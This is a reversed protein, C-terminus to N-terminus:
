ESFTKGEASVNGLGTSYIMELVALSSQGFKTSFQIKILYSPDLRQM